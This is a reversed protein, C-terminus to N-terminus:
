KAPEPGFLEEVEEGLAKRAKEACRKQDGRKEPSLLAEQAEKRAAAEDRDAILSANKTATEVEVLSLEEIRGAKRGAVVSLNRELMLADDPDVGIRRLAAKLEPILAVRRKGNEGARRGLEAADADTIAALSGNPIEGNWEPMLSLAFEQYADRVRAIGCADLAAMFPGLPGATAAPAAAAQPDTGDGHVEVSEVIINTAAIVEQFQRAYGSVRAYEDRNYARTARPTIESYAIGSSNKVRTLTLATEVGYFIKAQAALRTFYQRLNKLSSPPVTLVIPLVDGERVIFLSRVEKCAKGPGGKPDSKWQNFPCAQCSGGPKGSGRVLDNSYCDPSQGEGSYPDAWFVRGEKWAVITGVLEKAEVEGEVSPIVWTTTGGSPVKVRDLDAPSLPSDGLNARIIGGIDLDTTMISISQEGLQALATEQNESM